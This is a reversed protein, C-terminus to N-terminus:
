LLSRLASGVCITYESSTPVTEKSNEINPNLELKKFPEVFVVEKAPINSELKELLLSNAKEGFLYLTDVPKEESELRYEILKRRTEKIILNALNTNRLTLLFQQDDTSISWGFIILLVFVIFTVVQLSIPIWKSKFIADFM